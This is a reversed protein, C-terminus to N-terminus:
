QIVHQAYVILSFGIKNIRLEAKLVGRYMRASGKQHAMVNFQTVIEDLFYIYCM